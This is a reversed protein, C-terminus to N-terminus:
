SSVHIVSGSCGRVVQTNQPREGNYVLNACANRFPNYPSRNSSNEKLYNQNSQRNANMYSNDGGGLKLLLDEHFKVSLQFQKLNQFLHLTIILTWYSPAGEM